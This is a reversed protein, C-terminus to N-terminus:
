STPPGGVPTPAKDAGVRCLVVVLAVGYAAALGVAHTALGTLFAQLVGGTASFTQPAVLAIGGVVAAFLLPPLVGATFLDRRRVSMASTLAVVIFCLDFFITLRDTLALNLGACGVTALGSILVVRRGSLGPASSYLQVRSQDSSHSSKTAEPAAAPRTAEAASTFPERSAFDPRDIEDSSAAHSGQEVIAADPEHATAVRPASSSM